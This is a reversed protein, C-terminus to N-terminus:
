SEEKAEQRHLQSARARKYAEKNRSVRAFTVSDKCKTCTVIDSDATVRALDHVFGCVPNGSKVYCLHTELPTPIPAQAQPPKRRAHRKAAKLEAQLQIVQAQLRRCEALRGADSLLWFKEEAAEAETM